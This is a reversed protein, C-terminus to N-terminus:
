YSIEIDAVFDAAINRIEADPSRQFSKLIRLVENRPWNSMVNVYVFPRVESPNAKLDAIIAPIIAHPNSHKAFERCHKNLKPTPGKNWWSNDIPTWFASLENPPEWVGFFHRKEATYALLPLSIAAVIVLRLLKSRM